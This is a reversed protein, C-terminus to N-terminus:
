LRQSSSVILALHLENAQRLNACVSLLVATEGLNNANLSASICTEGTVIDCGRGLAEAGSQKDLNIFVGSPPLSAKAKPKKSQTTKQVKAHNKPKPSKPTPLKQFPFSNSFPFSNGVPFQPLSFFPYLPTSLFEASLVKVYVKSFFAL